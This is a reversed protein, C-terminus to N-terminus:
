ISNAYDNHSRVAAPLKNCLDMVSKDLSKALHNKIPRRVNAWLLRWGGEEGRLIDRACLMNFVHKRVLVCM